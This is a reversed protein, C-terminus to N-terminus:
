TIGVKLSKPMTKILINIFNAPTNAHIPVSLFCQICVKIIINNILQSIEACTVVDVNFRLFIRTYVMSVLRNKVGRGTPGSPTTDDGEHAAAATEAAVRLM